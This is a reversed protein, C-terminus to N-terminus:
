TGVSDYPDSDIIAMGEFNPAGKIIPTALPDGVLQSYYM